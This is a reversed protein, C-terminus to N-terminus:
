LLERHVCTVNNINNMKDIYVPVVNKKELVKDTQETHRGYPYAFFSIYRPHSQMAEICKNVHEEFLNVELQESNVHEYGHMGITIMPSDIANLETENLYLQEALKREAEKNTIKFYDLIQPGCSKGDLNKATVFMTMPINEEELWLILEAQCKLGDDCTLVAYKKSRVLDDKLHRYAEQMSIFVYGVKQLDSIKQKFESLSMWDPECQVDPALRESVQHFCFVRIPQLRIRILKRKFRNLINSAMYGIM